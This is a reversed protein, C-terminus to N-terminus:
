TKLLEEYTASVVPVAARAEVEAAAARALAALRDEDALLEDLVRTLADVDGAPYLMGTEGDRVFEALEGVDSVVPVVGAAMAELMAISLGESASPLVFVRASRDLREIDTRFGLFEVAGDVGLDRALARLEDERPGRGVIAARLNPHQPLLQSVARVVDATRKNPLLASVTILDYRPAPRDRSTFRDTDIAPPVAVVREPDFGRELLARRGAGGMVVVVSSRRARRLLFRELGPRPGSLRGLINNDSTWGGEFWEREGGIMQYMSRTRALRAAAIANLGHPVLNFGIVWDPRERVAIVICLLLKGLARGAIKTLWRPPVVVELKPLPAPEFDAVLKVSAVSDLTLIPLLHARLQNDNFSVTALLRLPRRGEGHTDTM